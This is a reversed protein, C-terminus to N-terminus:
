FAPHLILNQDPLLYEYEPPIHAIDKRNQHNVSSPLRLVFLLEQNIIKTPQLMVALGKLIFPMNGAQKM